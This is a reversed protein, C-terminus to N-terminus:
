QDSASIEAQRERVISELLTAVGEDVNSPIVEDVIQLVEERANAVAVSWSAWALMALDNNEDGVAALRAVDIGVRECAKALGVAKTIGPPGILAWGQGASTVSADTEGVVSSVLKAMDTANLEPHWCCLKTVAEELHNLLDPVPPETIGWEAAALPDIMGLEYRFENLVEVAFLAGPVERRLQNVIDTAALPSLSQHFLTAKAEVDWAVAGNSCIAIPGIQAGSCAALMSAPPRATAPIVSIGLTRAQAIAAKTRLSLKGGPPLLTGDLDTAVAVLSHRKKM